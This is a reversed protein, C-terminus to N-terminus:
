NTLIESKQSWLSFSSNFGPSDINQLFIEQPKLPYIPWNFSPRLNKKIKSFQLKLAQSAFNIFKLYTMSTSLKSNNSAM